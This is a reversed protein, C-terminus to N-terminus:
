EQHQSSRDAPAGRGLWVYRPSHRAIHAEVARLDSLAAETCHVNM